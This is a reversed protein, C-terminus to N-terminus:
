QQGGGSPRTVAMLTDGPVGVRAAAIVEALNERVQQARHGMEDETDALQISGAKSAVDLALKNLERNDSSLELEYFADWMVSRMQNVEHTATAEDTWGDHRAHWRKIEAVRYSLLATAFRIVASRYEQRRVEMWARRDSRAATQRATWTTLVAGLATGSLGLLGAVLVTTM